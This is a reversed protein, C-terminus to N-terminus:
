FFTFRYPYDGYKIQVYAFLQSIFYMVLSLTFVVSVKKLWIPQKLHVALNMAVIMGIPIITCLFMICLSEHIFQGDGDTFVEGYEYSPMELTNWMQGSCMYGCYTIACIGLLSRILDTFDM